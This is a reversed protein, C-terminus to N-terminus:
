STAPRGGLRKFIVGTAEALVLKDVLDIALDQRSWRWPKDLGLATMGVVDGPWLTGFVVGVAKQGSLGARAAVAHAAGWAAGVGFHAAYNLRRRDRRRRAKIPLLRQVMDAPAYSEKRRTLPMELYKQFGTMVVTGALGSVVGRGLTTALGARNSADDM